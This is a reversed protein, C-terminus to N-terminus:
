EKIDDFCIGVSGGEDNFVRRCSGCGWFYEGPAKQAEFRTLSKGGCVPCPEPAQPRGYDDAFHTECQECKWFDGTAESTLRHAEGGCVPCPHCIQRRRDNRFEWVSRCSYCSWTSPFNTYSRDYHFMEKKGCTECIRPEAPTGFHDPILPHQKCAWFKGDKTECFIAADGCIPCTGKDGPAPSTNANMTHDGSSFPQDRLARATKILEFGLNEIDAGVTARDKIADCIRALEQMTATM